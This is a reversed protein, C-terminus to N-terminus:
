IIQFFLFEVTVSFLVLNGIILIVKELSIRMYNSLDPSGIILKVKELSIDM